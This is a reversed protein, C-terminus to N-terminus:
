QLPGSGSQPAPRRLRDIVQQCDRDLRKLEDLMSRIAAFHRDAIDRLVAIEPLAAELKLRRWCM